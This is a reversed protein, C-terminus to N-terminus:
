AAAERAVRLWGDPGTELPIPDALEGVFAGDVRDTWTLLWRRGHLEMLRGAYARDAPDGLLLPGPPVAFPGLPASGELALTGTEERFGPRARRVASHDVTRCCALVTWRGPGLEVLQPVELEFLEGPESLPPGVEFTAGGDVSWAHGIVGRGDSPGHNARATILLHLVGDPTVFAWPDRWHTERVAAGCEYWRPDAELVPGTRTWTSLDASRAFGIRQVTMAEGRSVGTYAMLWGDGHRIVSGTWTALDDFAGMPGPAFADPLLEWRRLDRSVAHGIRARAHRLDPDGLLRPAHLFFAHVTDGDVAFWADWVWDTPHRLTM